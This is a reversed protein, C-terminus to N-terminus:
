FREPCPSGFDITKYAVSGQCILLDLILSFKLANVKKVQRASKLYNGFNFFIWLAIDDM